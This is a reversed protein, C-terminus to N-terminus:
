ISSTPAYVNGRKCMAHDGGRQVTEQDIPRLMRSGLERSVMLSSCGCRLLPLSPRRHRSSNSQSKPHNPPDESISRPFSLELSHRSPARSNVASIKPSFVKQDSSPYSHFANSALCVEPTLLPQKEDSVEGPGPCRLDSMGDVVTLSWLQM